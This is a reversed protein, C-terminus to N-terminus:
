YKFELQEGKGKPVHILEEMKKRREEAEKDCNCKEDPDLNAGRYECINFLM